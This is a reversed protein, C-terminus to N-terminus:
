KTRFILELLIIVSLLLSASWWTLISLASFGLIALIFIAILAGQRLASLFYNLVAEKKSFRLRIYFGLLTFTSCLAVFLSIFFLSFTLNDAKFPNIYFIFIFFISWFVLSLFFLSSLYFRLLL